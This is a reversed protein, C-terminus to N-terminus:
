ITHCLGVYASDPRKLDSRSWWWGVDSRQCAEAGGDAIVRVGWLSFIIDRRFSCIMTLQINAVTVQIVSWGVSGGERDRESSGTPLRIM